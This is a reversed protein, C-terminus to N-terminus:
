TRFSLHWVRSVGFNRVVSGASIFILMESDLHEVLFRSYWTKLCHISFSRIFLHSLSCKVSSTFPTEQILNNAKENMEEDGEWTNLAQKTGGVDGPIPIVSLEAQFALHICKEQWIAEALGPQHLHEAWSTSVGEPRPAQEKCCLLGRRRRVWTPYSPPEELEEEECPLEATPVGGPCLWGFLFCRGPDRALKETCPFRACRPRLVLLPPLEPRPGSAPRRPPESVAFMNLKEKHADRCCVYFFWLM